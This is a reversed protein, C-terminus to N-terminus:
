TYDRSAAIRNAEPDSPDYTVRKPGFRLDMIHTFARGEVRPDSAAERVWTSSADSMSLRSAMENLVAVRVARLYTSSVRNRELNVPVKQQIDVHWKDDLETVPIGMEYLMPKEGPPPEYIRLETERLKTSLQGRANAIVTPLNARFSRLATRRLNEQGNFTTRVPPILRRIAAGIQEWESISLRLAGTFVSGRETRQRTRRRGRHDFIVGGTMSLLMAQDCFALVFKEDANFAGRKEPNAKKASDAFLTFADALDQFGAPSDDSVTLTTKGHRPRLLSVHVASVREDWANQVLEYALVEKGGRALIRQLGDMDVTIWSNRSGQGRIRNTM